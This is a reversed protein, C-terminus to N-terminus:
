PDRDYARGEWNERERSKREKESYSKRQGGQFFVRSIKVDFMGVSQPCLSSPELRGIIM